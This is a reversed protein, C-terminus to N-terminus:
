HQKNYHNNLLNIHQLDLPMCPVIHLPLCPSCRSMVEWKERLHGVEGRLHGVEGKLTGSRGYTDWKEVYTDWKEM